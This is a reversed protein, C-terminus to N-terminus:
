VIDWSDAYTAFSFFGKQASGESLRRKFARELGAGFEFKKVLKKNFSIGSYLLIHAMRRM